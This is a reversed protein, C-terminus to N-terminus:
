SRLLQNIFICEKSSCNLPLSLAIHVAQQASMQQLNLLTNGLTHIMQIADIQSREHEKHIKRFSNTMSKEVKTMYSSCYSAAAYANLVYQADTNANWLNPM